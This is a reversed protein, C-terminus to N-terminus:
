WRSRQRQRRGVMGPSQRAGRRQRLPRVQRPQVGSDASADLHCNRHHRQCLVGMYRKNQCGSAHTCLKTTPDVVPGTKQYQRQYCANCCGKIMKGDRAVEKGCEACIRAGAEEKKRKNKETNCTKCLPNSATLQRKKCGLTACFGRGDDITRALSSLARAEDLTMPLRGGLRESPQHQTEVRRNGANSSFASHAEALTVERELQESMATQHNTVAASIGMMGADSLTTSNRGLNPRYTGQTAVRRNGAEILTTSNRGLNPRYTGQTAVRRHGAISSLNFHAEARTVQRGERESMETQRNTVAARMGDHGLSSHAEARTVQRGLRAIMETQRNTVAVQIGSHGGAQSPTYVWVEPQILRCIMPLFRQASDTVLMRRLPSQDYYESVGFLLSQGSSQSIFLAISRDLIPICGNGVDRNVV